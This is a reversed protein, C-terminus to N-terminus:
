IFRELIGTRAGLGPAGLYYRARLGCGVAHVM